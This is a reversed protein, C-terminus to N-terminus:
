KFCPSWWLSRTMRRDTVRWGYFYEVSRFTCTEWLYYMLYTRFQTYVISFLGDLLTVLLYLDCPPVDYLRFDEWYSPILFNKTRIQISFSTLQKISTKVTCVSSGGEFKKTVFSVTYPFPYVFCSVTTPDVLSFIVSWLTESWNIRSSVWRPLHSPFITPYFRYM